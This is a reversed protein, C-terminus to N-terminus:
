VLDFPEVGHGEWIRRSADEPYPGAGTGTDLLGTLRGDTVRYAPWGPDGHAAFSAWSRRIDDGLALVDEPPPEEGYFLRAAPASYTGFLLSVDLGHAAGLAGGLAPASLCLEYLHATGGGASHADALHLSPMRFLVDSYLLEFLAAPSADPHAARYAREGDPAPALARLAATADEDTIKEPHGSLMLFPRFEDRTHGTLLDTESARGDRLSRWPVDPVVDGDVVPLFPVGSRALRGWRDIRAPLEEMLPDIADALRQPSVAALGATTPTTGLRAALDATVDAALACTAYLGPVSQTIARRFLGAARPAALLTAISGAGASQGCLTVRDPNGGFRAINQRVWDLAALQDLLGRNDPVGPLHAFGEAGLRYNLTVVVLGGQGALLAADYLPDGAAGSVYAGGPIWVLVPLGSGGPDPTWVNLTLWDTGAPDGPVRAPGSQPPPPGFALADRVGDWPLPPQPAAFRLNGVPPRAYPVGRFVALGGATLEGRVIGQATRIEM